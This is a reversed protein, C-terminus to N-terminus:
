RHRQDQHAPQQGERASSGKGEAGSANGPTVALTALPLMLMSTAPHKLVPQLCRGVAHSMAILQATRWLMAELTCMSPATLGDRSLM